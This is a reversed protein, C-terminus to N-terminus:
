VGVADIEYPAKLTGELELEHQTKEPNTFNVDTDVEMEHWQLRWNSTDDRFVQLKDYWKALDDDASLSTVVATAGALVMMWLTLKRM